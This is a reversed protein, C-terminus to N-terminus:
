RHPVLSHVLRQPTRQHDLDQHRQGDLRRRGARGPDQHGRPRQGRGARESRDRLQGGRRLDRSHVAAAARRDRVPATVQASQRDATWHYQLPAGWRLMEEVVLFRDVAGREHGGYRKPMAM